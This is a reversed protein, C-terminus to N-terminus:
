ISFSMFNTMEIYKKMLRLLLTGKITVNVLILLGNIVVAVAFHVNSSLFLNIVVAAIEKWDDPTYKGHSM